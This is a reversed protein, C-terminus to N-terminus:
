RSRGAGRGAAGATHGLRGAQVAAEAEKGFVSNHGLRGAQFAAVDAAHGAAVATPVPLISPHIFPFITCRHLLPM